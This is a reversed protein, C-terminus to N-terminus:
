ISVQTVVKFKEVKFFTFYVCFWGLYLVLIKQIQESIIERIM